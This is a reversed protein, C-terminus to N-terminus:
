VSIPKLNRLDHADEVRVEGLQLNDVLARCLKLILDNCCLIHALRKRRTKAVSEAARAHTTSSIRRIIEVARVHSSPLFRHVHPTKQYNTLASNITEQLLLISPPEPM